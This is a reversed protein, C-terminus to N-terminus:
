NTGKYKYEYTEIIEGFSNKITQLRGFIDYEYYITNNRQDTSSTLGIFNHYTYTNMQAKQPYLRLEDVHIGTGSITISSSTITRQILKWETTLNESTGLFDWAGSGSARRVWFTLTYPSSTSAGIGDKSIAGSNLNYYKTGTKSNINTVPIGSYTWNGKESTEFSTFSITSNLEINSVKCLIENTSPEWIYKEIIGLNSVTTPKGQLNFSLVNLTNYFDQDAPTTGNLSSYFQQKTNLKDSKYIGKLYIKSNTTQSFQFFSIDLFNNNSITNENIKQVEIVPFYNKSTLFNLGSFEHAYKFKTVLISTSVSDRSEKLFHLNNIYKFRKAKVYEQGGEVDKEVIMRPKSIGFKTKGLAFYFKNMLASSYIGGRTDVKIFPLEVFDDVYEYSVESILHSNHNNKYFKSNKLKGYYYNTVLPDAFPLSPEQNYGFDFFTFFSNVTEGSGENFKKVKRYLIHSGSYSEIPLINSASRITYDCPVELNNPLVVYSEKDYVFSSYGNLVGSSFGDDYLYSYNTIQLNSNDFDKIVIKKVRAGGVENNRRILNGKDEYSIGLSVVDGTQLNSDFRSSKLIAKYLGANMLIQQSNGASLPNLNLISQNNSVRNVLIQMNNNGFGNPIQQFNYNFTVLTNNSSISFSIERVSYGCSFDSYDCTGMVSDFKNVITIEPEIIPENQIFSVTNPEYEIITKGKFSNEIETLLGIKSFQFNPKRNAGPFYSLSNSSQIIAEPVLHSNFSGNYYGWEDINRSNINPISGSQYFFKYKQLLTNQPVSIKELSKLTLRGSSYDHFLKFEVNSSGKTVKISSLRKSSGGGQNVVDQRDSVYSLLINYDSKFAISKLLKEDVITRIVTGSLVGIQNGSCNSNMTKRHVIEDISLLQDILNSEYTYLLEEGNLGIIKSVYWSNVYSIDNICSMTYNKTSSYSKQDLVYKVGNNDIIEFKDIIGSANNRFTHITIQENSSVILNGEWNFSFQATITSTSFYFIDPETDLCGNSIMQYPALNVSNNVQILNSYSFNNITNLFPIATQVGVYGDDPLARMKRTVVPPSSIQWGLGIESSNSNVKVSSSNYKLSIESSLDDLSFNDISIISNYSGSSENVDSILENLLSNQKPTNHSFRYFSSVGIEQSYCKGLEFILICLMLLIVKNNVILYFKCKM